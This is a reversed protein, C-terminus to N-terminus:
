RHSHYRVDKEGESLRAASSLQLIEQCRRRLQDTQLQLRVYEQALHDQHAPYASSMAQQQALVKLRRELRAIKLNLMGVTEPMTEDVLPDLLVSVQSSTLPNSAYTQILSSV